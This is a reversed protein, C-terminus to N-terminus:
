TGHTRRALDIYVQEFQQVCRDLTFHALARQRAAAGLRECRQKDHLLVLLANALAVADGPPTLLGSRGHEIQDALGGHDSAVVAVGRVMAEACTLGFTESAISPVVHVWGPSLAGGIQDRSLHGLWTVQDDIGLEMAKRQLVERMPGDGALLLKAQPIDAVVRTMAWLLVDVGKVSSLRGAYTVTPPDTLSQRPPQSPVGNFIVQVDEFGGKELLRRLYESNAVVQDIAGRWHHLLGRQAMAAVWAQPSLCQRCVWGPQENCPSGDPLVKNVVPCVTEESVAHYLCPVRLLLPLIAPSFHTMFMRVHVVDPHFSRLVQQLKWVALPNATKLLTGLASQVGFFTVDAHSGHVGVGTSSTMLVVEHGRSRLLDRMAASMLEAGGTPTGLDNLILIRM